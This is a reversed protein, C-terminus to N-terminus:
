ATLDQKRFLYFAAVLFVTVWAALIGSSQWWVRAATGGGASYFIASLQQANYGIGLRLVDKIWGLSSLGALSAIITDIFVLGIGAAIGASASKFLVTLFVAVAFYASLALLIRGLSSVLQGAYGATFFDWSMGGNVLGTTIIGIIFGVVAVLVVAAVANIGVVSLKAGLYKARGTGKVLVQRVTGWGYETGVISAGLIVLLLAGLGGILMSFISGMAQPLVLDQKINDAINQMGPNVIVGQTSGDPGTVTVVPPNSQSSFNNYNTYSIFKPLAVMAVLIILLAYPMWRKRLKFFEIRMLRIM